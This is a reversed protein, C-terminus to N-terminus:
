CLFQYVAMVEADGALGIAGMDDVIAELLGIGKAVIEGNAEAKGRKILTKGLITNCIIVNKGNKAFSKNKYIKLAETVSAECKSLDNM